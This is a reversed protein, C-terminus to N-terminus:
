ESPARALVLTPWADPPLAPPPPLPELTMTATHLVQFTGTNSLPAFYVHGEPDAESFPFPDDLLLGTTTVTASAVDVAFLESQGGIDLPLYFTGQVYAGGRQLGGWGFAVESSAGTAFDLISLGGMTSVFLREGQRDFTGNGWVNSTGAIQAGWAPGMERFVFWTHLQHTAVLGRPTWVLFGESLLGGNGPPYNAGPGPKLYTWIAGAPDYRYVNHDTGLLFVFHGDSALRHQTAVPPDPLTTWTALALDLAYFGPAGSTNSLYLRAACDSDTTTTCAAPCCGDGGACNTVPLGECSGAACADSQTCANHDECAGGENAPAGGSCVGLDCSGGTRCVDGCSSGSPAPDAVCAGPSTLTSCSAVWCSDDPPPCDDRLTGQSCAGDLCTEELLCFSAECPAGNFAPVLAECYGSEACFGAACDNGSDCPSGTNPTHQCQGDACVDTTCTNDDDTCFGGLPVIVCGIAPACSSAACEGELYTCDPEPGGGVCAGVVCTDVTTCPDLDNCPAGDNGTTILCNGTADECTVVHCPSPALCSPPVGGTCAGAQCVEDTTCSLGDDCSTGDAHPLRVCAGDELVGVNCTDDLASCDESGGAGGAAGSGGAGASVGGEGGDGDVVLVPAPCAALLLALAAFPPRRM